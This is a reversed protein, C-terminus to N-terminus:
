RPCTGSLQMKGPPYYKAVSYANKKTFVEEITLEEIPMKGTPVYISSPTVSFSHFLTFWWPCTTFKWSDWAKTQLFQADTVSATVQEWLFALHFSQSFSPQIEIFCDSWREKVHSAIMVMCPCSRPVFGKAKRIDRPPTLVGRALSNLLLM